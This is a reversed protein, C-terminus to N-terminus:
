APRLRPIGDPILGLLVLRESWHTVVGPDREYDIAHERLFMLCCASFASMALSGLGFHPAVYDRVFIQITWEGRQGDPKFWRFVFHFDEFFARCSINPSQSELYEILRILTERDLVTDPYGYNIKM